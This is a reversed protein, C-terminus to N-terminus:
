KQESDGALAVLTAIFSARQTEPIRALRRGVMGSLIADSGDMMDKGAKTLSIRIRRSDQADIHREIFAKQSLQDLHKTVLSNPLKMVQAIAGPHVAGNDIAHLFYYLRLDIGQKQELVPSLQQVISMNLGHLHRLFTSVEGALDPRDNTQNSTSV